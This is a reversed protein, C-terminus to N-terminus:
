LAGGVYYSVIHWTSGDCVITATSFDSALTKTTAGDITESANGDIIISAAGGTKAKITLVKGTSTAVAPLTITLSATCVIIDDSMTATYDAAKSVTKLVLGNITKNTLTQTDSTGVVTGSPATKGAWTTLNADYAQVNTGIALGLTTRQATADADDVLARGASTFTTVAATGSGTFYPLKDAASTLGAIATLEADYAQVDTGITLGLITKMQTATKNTWRATDSEYNLTDGDSVGPLDVNDLEELREPVEQEYVLTYPKM